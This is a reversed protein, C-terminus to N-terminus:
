FDQDKHLSGSHKTRMSFAMVVSSALLLNQRQIEQGGFTSAAILAIAVHSGLASTLKRLQYVFYLKEDVSSLGASRKLQSYHQTSM